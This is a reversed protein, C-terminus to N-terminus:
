FVLFSWWPKVEKIKEVKESTANVTLEKQVRVPIFFLLNRKEVSKVQYVPKDNESTLEIKLDIPRKIGAKEVLEKPMIKVEKNNVMLKEKEVVLPLKVEAEIGDEKLSLNSGNVLIEVSKNEAGVEVEKQEPIVVSTEEIKIIGPEFVFKEVVPQLEKFSLRNQNRVLEKAMFGTEEKIEKIKRLRDEESLQTQLFVQTTKEKFYDVIEEAREPSVPKLLISQSVELGQKRGSCIAVLKARENQLEGLIKGLEQKEYGKSKLEELSLSILSKYYDIKEDLLDKRDCVQRLEPLITESAELRNELAQKKLLLQEEISKQCDKRKLEIKEKILRIRERIKKEAELDGSKKALDAEKLLENIERLSDVDAACINILVPAPKVFVKLDVSDLQTSTAPESIVFDSSELFKKNKEEKEKIQKTGDPSILVRTPLEIKMLPKESKIEDIPLNEGCKEVRKWGKPVDCPTPFDRCEGTLPNQAPTIVQVCLPNLLNNIEIRELIKPTKPGIQPQTQFDLPQANVKQGVILFVVILFSIQILVSRKNM